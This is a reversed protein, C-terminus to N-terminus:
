SRPGGRVFGRGEYLSQESPDIRKKEGTSKNVMWVKGAFHMGRTDPKSWGDTDGWGDSSGSQNSKISPDIREARKRETEYWSRAKDEAEKATPGFFSMYIDSGLNMHAIYKDSGWESQGEYVRIVYPM